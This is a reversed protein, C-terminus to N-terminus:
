CPCIPLTHATITTPDKSLSAALRSKGRIQIQVQQPRAMVTCVLYSNSCLGSLNAETWVAPSLALLGWLGWASWILHRKWQGCSPLFRSLSCFTSLHLPQLPWQLCSCACGLYKDEVWNLHLVIDTVVCCCNGLANSCNKKVLISNAPPSNSLSEFNYEEPQITAIWRWNWSEYSEPLIYRINYSIWSLAGHQVFHGENYGSLIYVAELHDSAINAFFAFRFLHPKCHLASTRCKQTTVSHRWIAM